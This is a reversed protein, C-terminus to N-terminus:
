TYTCTHLPPISTHSDNVKSLEVSQLVACILHVPMLVRMALIILQEEMASVSGGKANTMGFVYEINESTAFGLAGSLLYVMVAQPSRLPGPFQCCRVVFHKMTEETGAAVVFATLFTYALFVVPHPAPESNSNNSSSSSDETTEASAIESFATVASFIHGLFPAVLRQAMTHPGIPMFIWGVSASAVIAANLFFIFIMIAVQLIGEFVVSQFTTFWFGVAFLKIVYDLSAYNRNYRWYLFYLILFPQVFVLLLVAVNRARKTSSLIIVALLVVIGCLSLIIRSLKSIHSLAMLFTLDNDAGGSVDSPSSSNVAGRGILELDVNGSGSSNSSSSTGYPGAHAGSATVDGFGIMAPSASDGDHRLREGSCYDRMPLKKFKVERGEQCVACCSCCFHSFLDDFFSGHIGFKDRIDSRVSTRRLAFFIAAGLGILLFGLLGGAVTAVIFIFVTLWFLV